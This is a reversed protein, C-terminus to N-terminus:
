QTAPAVSVDDIYTSSTGNLAGVLFSINTAPFVGTYLSNGNYWVQYSDNDLDVLYRVPVWQGTILTAPVSTAGDILTLYEHNCSLERAYLENDIQFFAHETAVPVYWWFSVEWKGGTVQPFPRGVIRLDGQQTQPTLELSNGGSRSFANSVQLPTPRFIQINQWGGQGDIDSGVVYSDFNESWGVPAIVTVQESDSNAPYFLSGELPVYRAEFKYLGQGLVGGYWSAGTGLGQDTTTVVFPQTANAPIPENCVEWTHGDPLTGTVVISGTPAVDGASTSWTLTVTDHVLAPASVTGNVGTSLESSVTVPLSIVAQIRWSAWLEVSNAPMTTAVYPTGSLGVNDFWGVFNFGPYTVPPLVLNAGYRITNTIDGQGNNPHCLLQYGKRQYEYRVVTSGDGKITVTQATPNTFGEYTKVAPTAQSGATASFTESEFLSYLTGATIEKWHEVKYTVANTTWKAYLALDQAPMTSSATYHTGSFVANDYWGGFTNGARTVTPLVILAGYKFQGTTDLGENNPHFTVQYSNRTYYYNLVASGDGKITVTQAAPATFGTYTNLPPTVTTGSAGSFTQTAALTYTGAAINEQYHKVSYAINANATWKAWLHLSAAPMTTGAYPTGICAANDYWGAFTYGARTVVPPALAGGYVVGTRVIDADPAGPTFTLQYSNRTYRYEVVTSGAGSIIVTQTAPAAFGPYSNVAPTVSTGTPGTPNQTVFLVYSTGALAQQYHRVTYPTAANPTWKAYLTPNTAPMTTATYAAGTCAATTYWGGFTYGARTPTPLTVASGYAGVIPSLASGGQSNFSIMYSSALDDWVLHYTRSIPVTTFSLPAGKWSVTMYGEAIHQGAPPTATITGNTQKFSSNTFSVTFDSSAHSETTVDGETLDLQKMSFASAPLVYTKTAGKMRIDDTADTLTYSFDYINYRSGVSWLPWEHSYLTPNYSYKGNLAQALFRTEFYIGLELYLAGSTNSTRVHNAYHLEYYFYGWLRVYPGIELELGISDLSLTFLGLEVRAVVGARLGLTGMVYFDFNYTEDVLDLQDSTSQKSFLLLTFTYRTGKTYDFQAGISVNVDASVSFELTLGAVLIHFPDIGTEFKCIQQNFIEVYDHENALMEAYLDYFEQTGASIEDAQYNTASMMDQIENAIDLPSSDGASTTLTARVDIGTYNYLDVNGTMRYDAIYPIRFIWVKKTKWVAGGSSNLTVRVEEEFTGSLHLNLDDGFGVDFSVTVACDLGKLGPFHEMTTDIHPDVQLNSITPSSGSGSAALLTAPGVQEKFGDTKQALDTLYEAAAQAFGSDIVQQKIAAEMASVDAQELVQGYDAPHSSYLDMAAKLQDETVPSFAIIYNGDRLDVSIIKAYTVEADEATSGTGVALFDGKEVVTDPGLGMAAFVPDTYTMDSIAITLSHNTSDGDLDDALKVPLVDPTFLVEKAEPTKYTVTQGDLATVEVYAVPQDSYDATANRQHPPTGEYIALLDGVKLAVPGTYTFTGGAGPDSLGGETTALPVSLSLAQAGNVTMNSIDGAPIEIVSPALQVNAVAQKKITFCYTRVSETEGVFTLAPDTLTLKYSSGPTYGDTATVTYAGGSGSVSLGAFPTDDVVKLQLAAKVADASMGTEPSAVQIEFGSERDVASVSPDQDAGETAGVGAYRAYLTLASIVPTDKTVAQEFSNNDTYWGLFISDAKNPVPLVGLPEGSQVHMSEVDGGGNSDFRVTFSLASHILEELLDGDYQVSCSGAARYDGALLVSGRITSTGTQTLGGSRNYLLGYFVGTNSVTAQKNQGVLLVQIPPSHTGIGDGGLIQNGAVSFNGATVFLTGVWSGSGSISIDGAVYTPGCRTAPGGSVTLKGGVRLSALSLVPSGSITVSGTVYVSDFSYTGSGAITLNGDVAIPGSFTRGKGGTLTLGKYITGTQQASQSALTLSSVLADPMFQSLPPIADGRAGVLLTTTGLSTSGNTSLTGKVYAAASPQGAIVPSEVKSSGSLTANGGSYLAVGTYPATGALAPTAVALVLLAALVVVLLGRKRLFAEAFREHRPCSAVALQRHHKAM